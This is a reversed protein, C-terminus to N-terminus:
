SGFSLFSILNKLFLGKTAKSQNANLGEIPNLMSILDLGGFAQKYVLTLYICFLM